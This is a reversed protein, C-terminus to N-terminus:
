MRLFCSQNFKPPEGSLIPRPTSFPLRLAKRKQAERVIAPLAPAICCERDPPLRRLLGHHGLQGGNLRLQAQVHVFGDGLDTCPESLDHRAVVAVVRDRAVDVPQTDKSLPQPAQPPKSKAGATLLWHWPSLDGSDESGPKWCGANQM